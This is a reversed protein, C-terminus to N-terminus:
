VPIKAVLSAFSLLRSVPDTAGALPPAPSAALAALSTGFKTESPSPTPGSAPPAAPATSGPAPAAPATPHQPVEPNASPKGSGSNSSARQPAVAQSPPASPSSPAAAGTRPAASAPPQSIQQPASMPRRFDVVVWLIPCGCSPYISSAAGVGMQTFRPDLINARHPASNMFAQQVSPIDVAMGVNEGLLTWNSIQDQLNPNHALVRTAALHNAWDQAVASMGADVRLPPLGAAARAANTAAALDSAPSAWAPVATAVAGSAVAALPVVIGVVARALRRRVAGFVM